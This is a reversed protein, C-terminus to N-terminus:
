MRTWASEGPHPYNSPRDISMREYEHHIRSVLNMMPDMMLTFPYFM